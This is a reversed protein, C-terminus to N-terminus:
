MAKTLLLQHEEKNMSLFVLSLDTLALGTNPDLKPIGAITLGDNNVSTDGITLSGDASLNM